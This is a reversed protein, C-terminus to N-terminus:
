NVRGSMESTLLYTEATIHHRIHCLGELLHDRTEAPMEHVLVLGQLENLVDIIVSQCHEQNQLDVKEDFHLLLYTNPKDM